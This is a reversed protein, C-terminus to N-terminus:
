SQYLYNLREWVDSCSDNLHFVLEEEKEETIDPWPTLLQKADPMTQILGNQEYYGYKITALLIRSHDQNKATVCPLLVQEMKKVHLGDLKKPKRGALMSIVLYFRANMNGPEISVYQTLTNEAEKYMKSKLLQIGKNFLLQEASISEKHPANIAPPLDYLLRSIASNLDPGTADIYQLGTLHYAFTDNDFPSHDLKFMIFKKGQANRVEKAVEDSCNSYKSYIFVFVRCAKIAKAIEEDFYKGTAIGYRRSTAIWSKMNSAQIADHVAFAVNRDPQVYSIFIDHDM